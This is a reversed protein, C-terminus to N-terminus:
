QPSSPPRPGGGKQAALRRYKRDLSRVQPDLSTRPPVADGNDIVDDAHQLRAWRPSQRELIARAEAADGGDRQLLREVQVAEPADVVLVRDCETTLGTEVLLPIASVSYPHGVQRATELRTHRSAAIRPHVIGELRRRADDDSFIRQRLRARDLAGEADLCERGFAAIVAELGESGPAVVERALADSDIVPIGLAAFREAVLSKGSAIGGTLGIVLM